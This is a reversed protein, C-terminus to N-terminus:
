KWRYRAVPFIESFILDIKPTGASFITTKLLNKEALIQIVKPPKWTQHRWFKKAMSLLHSRNEVIKPGPAVLLLQSRNKAALTCAALFLVHRNEVTKERAALFLHKWPSRGVGMKWKKLWNRVCNVYRYLKQVCNVCVYLWCMKMIIRCHDDFV